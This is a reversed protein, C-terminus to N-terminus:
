CALEFVGLGEGELVRGAVRGRYAFAGVLEHVFGYGRVAPDAAVVQLCARAEFEVEIRDIGDAARVIVRAPLRPTGRGGHLAAMAGPLRRPRAELRGAHDLRVSAGMFTRRRAGLYLAVFPREPRRRERDALRWLVVTPGPDPAAFAGWDWGVDDGWYWRGWNHDHYATADRLDLRRDGVSAEGSVALRGVAYWSFWGPGVPTPEDVAFAPVVATARVDLSLQEDPWRASATVTGSAHEVALAVAELAVSARGIRVDDFGRVELNGRWGHEPHHLLAAGVARSRPDEPAGHLSVNVFGVTQSPHDFVNLHLWDKYASATVDGRAPPRFADPAIV